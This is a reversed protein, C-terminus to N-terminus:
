SIPRFGIQPALFCAHSAVKAYVAAGSSFYVFKSFSDRCALVNDVMKVNEFFVSKDDDLLRSGGVACCHLIADFHAHSAFFATVASADLLDLEASSTALVQFFPIQIDSFERM